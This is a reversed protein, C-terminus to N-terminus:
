FHEYGARAFRMPQGTADRVTVGQGAVVRGIEVAGADAPPDMAATFVIEYDDGGALLRPLWTADTAVARRAADSLPVRPAQIDIAVGSAEAIHGLDAVLGDSVDAAARAVGRLALGQALRPQPLDYRDVLFAADKANPKYGGRRVALGLAADGITGTVFVREGVKANARLPATGCPLTGFVTISAWFPGDTATIDGGLLAIGFRAQDEALGLAYRELWADDISGDRPLGLTQLYGVPTAGKAALDSLNIRLAKAAVHEPMADSMFDIGCVVADTKLVLEEGPAPALYACDDVLGRAGPHTALPAFLEAILRFEGRRPPSAM